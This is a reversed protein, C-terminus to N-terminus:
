CWEPTCQHHSLKTLPDYSIQCAVVREKGVVFGGFPALAGRAAATVDLRMRGTTTIDKVV